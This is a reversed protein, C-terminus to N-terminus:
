YTEVSDRVVTVPVGNDELYHAILTQAEGKVFLRVESPDNAEAVELLNTGYPVDITFDIRIKM